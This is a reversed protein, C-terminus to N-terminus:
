ASTRNPMSCKPSPSIQLQLSTGPSVPWLREQALGQQPEWVEWPIPLPVGRGLRAALGAVGWGRSISGALSGVWTQAVTAELGCRATALSLSLSGPEGGGGVVWPQPAVLSKGLESLFGPSGPSAGEGLGSSM